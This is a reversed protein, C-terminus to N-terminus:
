LRQTVAQLKIRAEAQWRCPGRGLKQEATWRTAIESDTWGKARLYAYDDADYNAHQKLDMDTEMQQKSM